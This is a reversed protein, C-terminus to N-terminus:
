LLVISIRCMDIKGSSYANRIEHRAYLSSSGSVRASTELPQEHTITNTHTHTEVSTSVSNNDAIAQYSQKCQVYTHIYTHTHTHTHTHTSTM